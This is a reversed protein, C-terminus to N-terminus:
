HAPNCDRGRGELGRVRLRVRESRRRGAPSENKDRRVEGHLIGGDKKGGM